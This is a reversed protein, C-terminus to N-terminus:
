KERRGYVSNVELLFFRFTKLMIVPSICIDSGLSYLGEKM